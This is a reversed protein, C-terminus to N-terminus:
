GFSIADSSFIESGRFPLILTDPSGINVQVERREQIYILSPDDGERYAPNEILNNFHVTIPKLGHFLLEDIRQLIPIDTGTCNKVFTYVDEFEHSICQKAMIAFKDQHLNISKLELMQRLTVPMFELTGVSCKAKIPLAEFMLDEFELDKEAFDATQAKGFANFM